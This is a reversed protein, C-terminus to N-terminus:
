NKVFKKINVQHGKRVHSSHTTKLLESIKDDDYFKINYRGIVKKCNVCYVEKFEMEM